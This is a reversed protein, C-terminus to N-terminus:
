PSADGYSVLGRGSPSSSRSGVPSVPAAKGERKDPVADPSRSGSSDHSRLSSSRRHPSHENVRTGLRSKLRESLPLRKDAPSSGHM